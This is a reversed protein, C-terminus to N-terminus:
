PMLRTRGRMMTATIITLRLKKIEDSRTSILLMMPEPITLKKVEMWASMSSVSSGNRLILQLVIKLAKEPAPVIPKTITAAMPPILAVKQINTMASSPARMEIMTPRIVILRRWPTTRARM